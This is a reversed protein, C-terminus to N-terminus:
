AGSKSPRGHSCRISHSPLTSSSPVRGSARAPFMAADLALPNRNPIDPNGLALGGPWQRAAEALLPALVNQRDDRRRPRAVTARFAPHSADGRVPGARCTVEQGGTGCGEKWLLQYAAFRNARLKADDIANPCM